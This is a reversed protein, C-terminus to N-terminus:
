TIEEMDFFYKTRLAGIIKGLKNSGTGDRGITWFYDNDQHVIIPRLYTNLLNAKIEENQEFKLNFIYTMIKEQIEPWTIDEINDKNFMHFIKNAPNIDFLKHFESFAKKYCNFLGINPINILYSFVEGTHTKYLRTINIPQFMKYVFKKQLSSPPSSIKRWKETMHERAKHCKNIYTLSDYPSLNFIYCLVCASTFVSRSHGGRCHIYVKENKECDKILRSITIIFRSYSILDEPVSRDVIPYHIYNYKTKYLTIKKEDDLALNIFYRVNETELEEVAEQTPYCGFLAKDKIFYSCSNM